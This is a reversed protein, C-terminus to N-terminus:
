LKVQSEEDLARLKAKWEANELARRQKLVFSWQVSQRGPLIKPSGFLCKM